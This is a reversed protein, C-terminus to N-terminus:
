TYCSTSLRVGLSCVQVTQVLKSIVNGGEYWGRKVEINSGAKNHEITLINRIITITLKIFRTSPFRPSFYLIALFIYKDSELIIKASPQNWSQGSPFGFISSSKKKLKRSLGSYLATLSLPLHDGVGTSSYGPSRFSLYPLASPIKLIHGYSGNLKNKGWSIRM